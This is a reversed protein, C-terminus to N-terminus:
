KGSCEEYKKNADLAQKRLGKRLLAQSYLDWGTCEEPYEEVFVSLKEVAEDFRNAMILAISLNVFADKDEPQLEVARKFADIAKDNDKLRQFYLVGLNFWLQSNDPEIDLAKNYYEVALQLDDKDSYIVGLMQMARADNPDKELLKKFLGEAEEFKGINFCFNAYEEIVVVEEPAVEYARSYYAYASDNDGLKQWIFGLYRLGQEVDPSIRQALTFDDKAEEWKEEEANKKGSEFLASWGDQRLKKCDEAKKPLLQEAKELHTIMKAYDEQEKYCIALYYHAEGNEPNEDIAKEFDGIAKEYNKANLAIKGSTVWKNACGSIVFALALLVVAIRLLGRRM